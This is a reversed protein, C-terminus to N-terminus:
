AWEGYPNPLAAAVEPLRAVEAVKDLVSSGDAIKFFLWGIADARSHEVIGHQTSFETLWAAGPIGASLWRDPPIV